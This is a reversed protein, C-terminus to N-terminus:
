RSKKLGSAAAEEMLKRKREIKRAEVSSLGAAHSEREARMRNLGEVDSADLIKVGGGGGRGAISMSAVAAAAGQGRGVGVTGLLRSLSGSRGASTPLRGGVRSETRGRGALLGGRGVASLAPRLFSSSTSSSSSGHNNIGRGGRGVRGATSVFQKRGGGRGVLLESTQQLASEMPPTPGGGGKGSGNYIRSVVREGFGNTQLEQEEVVVSERQQDESMKEEERSRSDDALADVNLISADMNPSFHATAFSPSVASSEVVGNCGVEPLISYLTAPSLLAYYMPVFLPDVDVGRGGYGTGSNTEEHANNPISEELLGHRLIETVIKHLQKESETERKKTKEDVVDGDGNCNDWNVKEMEETTTTKTKDGKKDEQRQFMISRVIGAIVRVWMEDDNSEAESLLQYIQTDIKRGDNNGGLGIGGSINSSRAVTADDDLGLMAILCNLKVNKEARPFVKRLKRMFDSPSATQSSHSNSSSTTTMSSLSPAQNQQQQQQQISRSLDSSAFDSRCRKELAVLFADLEDNNDDAEKEDENCDHDIIHTSANDDIISGEETDMTRINNHQTRPPGKKSPTQKRISIYIKPDIKHAFM